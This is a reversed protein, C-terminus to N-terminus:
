TLLFHAPLTLIDTVSFRFYLIQYIKVILEDPFIYILFVM